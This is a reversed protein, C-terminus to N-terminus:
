DFSYLGLFGVAVAADVFLAWSAFSAKPRNEPTLQLLAFVSLLLTLALAAPHVFAPAPHGGQPRYTQVFTVLLAAVSARGVPIWTRGSSGVSIPGRDNAM